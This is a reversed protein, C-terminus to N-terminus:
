NVSLGKGTGSIARAVDGGRARRRNAVGQVRAITRVTKSHEYCARNPEATAALGRPGQWIHTAHLDIKESIPLLATMM